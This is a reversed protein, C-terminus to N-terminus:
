ESFSQVISKLSSILGQHDMVELLKVYISLINQFYPKAKELAEKDDLLQTFALIAYYKIVINQECMKDYLLAM